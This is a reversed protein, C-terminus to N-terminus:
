RTADQESRWNGSNRYEERVQSEPLRDNVIAIQQRTEDAWAPSLSPGGGGAKTSPMELAFPLAPAWPAMKPRQALM